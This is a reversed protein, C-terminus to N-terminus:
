FREHPARMERVVRAVTRPKVNFEEAFSEVTTCFEWGTQASPRRISHGGHYASYTYGLRPGYRELLVREVLRETPSPCM